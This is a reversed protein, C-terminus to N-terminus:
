SSSSARQTSVAAPERERSKLCLEQESSQGKGLTSKAGRCNKRPSVGVHHAQCSRCNSVKGSSSVAATQSHEGMSSEASIGNQSPFGRVGARTTQATKHSGGTGNLFEIGAIIQDLKENRPTCLPSTERRRNYISSKIKRPEKGASAGFQAFTLVHRAPDKGRVRTCWLFGKV